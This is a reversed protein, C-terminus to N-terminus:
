ARGGESAHVQLMLHKSLVALSSAMNENLVLVNEQARLQVPAFNWVALVGSEVLADCVSQAACEPVTIIGIKINMRRCLGRLKEVPLVQRGHVAAAPPNTDFAAVIDLGYQAFSDYSLLARGFEGTGVLVASTIDDYGLFKEIDAILDCVVYGTKPRGGNSVLALDKRVQVTNLGLADAIGTSSTNHVGSLSQLHKLYVPLRRLTQLPVSSHQM